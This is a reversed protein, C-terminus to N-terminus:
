PLNCLRFIQTVIARRDPIRASRPMLNQVHNMALSMNPMPCITPTMTTTIRSQRSPNLACVIVANQTTAAAVLRLRIRKLIKPQFGTFRYGQPFSDLGYEDVM